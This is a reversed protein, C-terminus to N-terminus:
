YYGDTTQDAGPWSSCGNITMYLDGTYSHEKFNTVTNGWFNKWQQCKYTYKHQSKATAFLDRGPGLLDLECVIADKKNNWNGLSDFPLDRLFVRICTMGGNIIYFPAFGDAITCYQEKQKRVENFITGCNIGKPLRKDFDSNSVGDPITSTYKDLDFLTPSITINTSSTGWYLQCPQWVYEGDKKREKIFETSVFPDNHNDYLCFFNSGNSVVENPQEVNHNGPYLDDGPGMWARYIPDQIATNSPTKKQEGFFFDLATEQLKPYAEDWSSNNSIHRGKITLDIRSLNDSTLNSNLTCIAKGQLDVANHQVYSGTTNSVSNVASGRGTYTFDVGKLNYSVSVDLGLEMPNRGKMMLKYAGSGQKEIKILLPFLKHYIRVPIDKVYIPKGNYTEKSSVRIRGSKYTPEANYPYLGDIEVNSTFKLGYCRGITTNEKYNLGDVKEVNFLDGGAVVEVDFDMLDGNNDFGQVYIMDEAGKIVMAVEKDFNMGIFVPEDVEIRWEEESVMNQTFDLTANYVTNRRISFDTTEDQGLYFRYKGNTYKASATQIDATIEIYTCYPAYKDGVVSPIKNKRDTNNPLLVGQLNEIFYLPVVEGANLKQVDDATLIDGTKTAILNGFVTAKKDTAFPYVDLACNIMRLDKVTYEADASADIRVNYQGVLRKVKLNTPSGKTYNMYANAVPFGKTRFDDYSSVVYQLDEIDSESEPADVEGVNGVLYINFGDKGGPLSFRISSLDTIYKCYEKQLIGEHYILINLDSIRKLQEETFSSKTKPGVHEPDDVEVTIGFSETDPNCIGTEIEDIACAAVAIVSMLLTIFRKM